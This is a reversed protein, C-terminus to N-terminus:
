AHRDQHLITTITVAVFPGLRERTRSLVTSAVHRANLLLENRDQDIERQWVDRLNDALAAIMALLPETTYILSTVTSDRLSFKAVM